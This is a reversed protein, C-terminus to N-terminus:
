SDNFDFLSLNSVSNLNLYSLCLVNISVLSVSTDVSVSSSDLLCSAPTSSGASHSPPRRCWKNRWGPRRGAPVTCVCTYLNFFAQCM